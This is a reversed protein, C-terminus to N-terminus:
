NIFDRRENTYKNYFDEDGKDLPNSRDIITAKIFIVTETTNKSKTKYKFLWGLVPINKLFPVGSDINSTEESMLGGIVMVSGSEIKLSTEIKKTQIEPVTNTIDPNPDTVESYKTRLEPKVKLTIENTKLNISPTIELIVGEQEEQKTSTYTYTKNGNNDEDEEREVSFYVINKVFDLKATQNNLSTVRPSSLTRTTGFEELASVIVNLDKSGVAKALNFTKLGGALTATSGIDVIKDYSPIKAVSTTTSTTGNNTSETTIVSNVNRIESISWNIGASFENKLSVEVVKAEILVQSGYNKKAREIYKDVAEQTKKDAYITVLSAPKNVLIKFIEHAIQEQNNIVQNSESNETSSANSDLVNKKNMVDINKNYIENHTELINEIGEKITNWLEHEILIDVDYDKLYPTDREIKLIGDKYDYKLNGINCLNDIIVDLTKDTAKFIVNMNINPDIQIDINALRSLELFVDKIPVEETISFSILQGNGMSPAPTPVFVDMVKPQALDNLEMTNKDLNKRPFVDNKRLGVEDDLMPNKTNEKISECNTVLFLIILFGALKKMCFKLM